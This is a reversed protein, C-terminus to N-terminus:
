YHKPKKKMEQFFSKIQNLDKNKKQQKPKM